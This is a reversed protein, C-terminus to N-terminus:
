VEAAPAVACHESVASEVGRLNNVSYVRVQQMFGNARVLGSLVRGPGIEYMADIDKEKCYEMCQKFYVPNCLQLAILKKIKEPDSETRGIANLIIPIRPEMFQIDEAWVTFKEYAENLYPSHWPGSVNIKKTTGGEQVVKASLADCASSDGSVVVQQPANDNAIFVKNKLGARDILVGVAEYEMSLVAVMTGKCSLAAEDMLKGREAAIALASDSDIVGAATLATIEGLSHGLVFDAKIGKEQIHRLYGLSVAVILPQLYRAQLLKKEPGKLCLITLDGGTIASAKHILSCFYEDERFLDRGMGVEQSGQGPFLFLRKRM